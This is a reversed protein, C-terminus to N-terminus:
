ARRSATLASPSTSTSRRRRTPEPGTSGAKFGIYIAAGAIATGTLTDSHPVPSGSMVAMMEGFLYIMLAMVVTVGGAFEGRRNERSATGPVARFPNRRRGSTVEADPNGGRERRLQVLLVGMFVM